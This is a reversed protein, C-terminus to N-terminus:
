KLALMATIVNEPVNQSRLYDARKTDRVANDANNKEREQQAGKEMGQALGKEMGSALGKAQGKLFAEAELVEYEHRDFMNAELAKLLEPNVRSVRLRDLANAFIPDETEPVQLPGRSILRLWFDERTKVGKRLQLFNPLDVVIYRNKQSIPLANGSKVEYESYTSWVDKYIEKSRLVSNNCLWISVTEPLEYYRYKREEEPLGMFYDSRNFEYKGRLTLYSNYLQMRDFFYAHVKNQMEINLYRNDRTHVWVDLRAPDNEPMFIDIPKEFEYELDIIEHDHDLQLLSNLVDRITDKDDMLIRFTAAYKPLLFEEGRENTVIYNKTSHNTNASM